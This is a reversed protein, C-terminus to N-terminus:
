NWYVELPDREALRRFTVDPYGVMLCGCIQKGEPLGILAGFREMASPTCAIASAMQGSWCTGLGLSPAMLALFTMAFQASKAARHNNVDSITFILQPCGYFLADFDGRERQVQVPYNVNDFDPHDPPLEGAIQDYLAHIADVKERGKVVIYGIGQSNCATQPYRGANLLQALVDRPVEDAKYQRVSRATRLFRLAADPSLVDGVAECLPALPNDLQGTPCVAACHGCRSCKDLDISVGDNTLRIADAQLHCEAYCQGCKACSFSHIM